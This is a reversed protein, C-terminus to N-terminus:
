FFNEVTLLNLFITGILRAEPNMWLCGARRKFPQLVDSRKEKKEFGIM